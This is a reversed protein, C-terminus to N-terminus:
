MGDSLKSTDFFAVVAERALEPVCEPWLDKNADPRLKVLRGAVEENGCELQGNYTMHNAVEQITSNMRYQVSLAITNEKDELHSCSWGYIVNANANTQCPAKM